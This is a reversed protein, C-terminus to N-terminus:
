TIILVGRGWRAKGLSLGKSRCISHMCVLRTYNTITVQQKNFTMAQFLLTINSTWIITLSDSKVAEVIPATPKM